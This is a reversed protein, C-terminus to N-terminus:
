FGDLYGAKGLAEWVTAQAAELQEELLGHDYTDASRRPGAWGGLENIDLVNLGARRAVTYWTHRTSHM